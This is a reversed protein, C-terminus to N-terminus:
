PSARPDYALAHDLARRADLLADGEEHVVFCMWAPRDDLGPMPTIDFLIGDPGRVVSHATLAASHWVIWGRVAAHGPNEAVWRDVNAHCASPQPSWGRPAVPKFPVSRAPVLRALIAADYARREEETM